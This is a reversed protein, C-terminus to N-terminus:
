ARAPAGGLRPPAGPEGKAAGSGPSSAAILMRQIVAGLLVVVGTGYMLRLAPTDTGALVGHVTALLFGGFAGAHIARWVTKPFRQSAFLLGGLGMAFTGLTVPGRLTSSAFPLVAALPSVRPDAIAAAVHLLTTLAAATAWVRHLVFVIPPNVLGGAGKGSVYVGFLMALWSAFWAVIGLSRMSWWVWPTETPPVHRLILAFVALVGAVRLLASM